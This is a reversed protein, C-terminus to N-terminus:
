FDLTVVVPKQDTTSFAAASPQLSAVTALPRAVVFAVEGGALM